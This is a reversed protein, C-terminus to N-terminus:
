CGECSCTCQLGGTAGDIKEKTVVGSQVSDGLVSDNCGSIGLGCVERRRSPEGMWVLGVLELCDTRWLSALKGIIFHCAYRLGENAADQDKVSEPRLFCPRCPMTLLQRDTPLLYGPSSSTLGRAM